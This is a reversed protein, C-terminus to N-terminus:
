TLRGRYEDTANLIAAPAILGERWWRATGELLRNLIGSAEEWLKLELNTEAVNGAKTSIGRLYDWWHGAKGFAAAEDRVTRLLTFVKGEYGAATVGPYPYVRKAQRHQGWM